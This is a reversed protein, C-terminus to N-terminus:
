DGLPLVIKAIIKGEATWQLALIYSVEVVARCGVMAVKTREM